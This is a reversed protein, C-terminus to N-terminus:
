LADGLQVFEEGGERGRGREIEVEAWFKRCPDEQVARVWLFGALSAEVDMWTLPRRALLGGGGGVLAPEVESEGMVCVGMEVVRDVFWERDDMGQAVIGGMFVLWLYLPWCDEEGLGGGSLDMGGDCGSIAAGLKAQLQRVIRDSERPLFRWARTVSKVFILGAM